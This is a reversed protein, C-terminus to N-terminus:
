ILGFLYKFAMATRALSSESTDSWFARKFHMSWYTIDYGNLGLAVEVLDPIRSQATVSRVASFILLRNYTEQTQPYITDESLRCAIRQALRRVEPWPVSIRLDQFDELEADFPSGQAFEVKSGGRKVAFSSLKTATEISIM